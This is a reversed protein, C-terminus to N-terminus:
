TLDKALESKQESTLATTARYTSHNIHIEIQSDAFRRVQEPSLRFRLYHVASIREEKSHGVEFDAFVREGGITMFVTHPADLGQFRDLVERIQNSDAIEIFLTASLCGSDPILQNYTDVEFQIKKEDQINEIRMMEQIQYKVTERNEFTLSIRPGVTIRRMKKLAIMETRQNERDVLYEDISCVDSRELKKM